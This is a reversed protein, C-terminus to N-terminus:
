IDIQAGGPVTDCERNCYAKNMRQGHSGHHAQMTSKIGTSLFIKQFFIMKKQGEILHIPTGGITGHCVVSLKSLKREKIAAVM